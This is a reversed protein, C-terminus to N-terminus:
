VEYKTRQLLDKSLTSRLVQLQADTFHKLYRQETFYRNLVTDKTKCEEPDQTDNGREFRSTTTVWETAEADKRLLGYSIQIMDMAVHLEGPDLLDEYRYIWRPVSMGFDFYSHVTTNWQLALQNLQPDTFKIVDVNMYKSMSDIWALPHKVLMVHQIDAEKVAAWEERTLPMFDPKWEPFWEKWNHSPYRVPLGHKWGLVDVLVRVDKFNAEILYRLYNTGTRKLGWQKIYKV